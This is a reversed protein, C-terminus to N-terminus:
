AIERLKAILVNYAGANLNLANMQAVREMYTLQNNEVIELAKAFDDSAKKAEQLKEDTEEMKANYEDITIEGNQFQTRLKEKEEILSNVSNQLNQFIDDVDRTAKQLGTLSEETKQITKEWTEM